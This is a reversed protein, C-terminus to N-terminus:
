VLFNIFSWFSCPVTSLNSESNGLNTGDYCIAVSYSYMHWSLLTGRERQNQFHQILCTEIGSSKESGEIFWFLNCVELFSKQFCYTGLNVQGGSLHGIEMEQFVPKSFVVRFFCTITWVKKGGFLWARWSLLHVSEKIDQLRFVRSDATTGGQSILHTGSLQPIANKLMWLAYLFQRFVSSPVGLEVIFNNIQEM